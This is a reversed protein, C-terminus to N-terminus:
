EAGSPFGRDDFWAGHLMEFYVRWNPDLTWSRKDGLWRLAWYIRALKLRAPFDAPAQGAWRARVYAAEARRAEEGNGWGELLSVLDLEGAGLAASGWDVPWAAERHILINKPYFEGHVMCQSSADALETLATAARDCVEELWPYQQVLPRSYEWTRAAWGAFYFSDYTPLLGAERESSLRQESTLRHFEGLWQAARCLSGQVRGVYTSPELWDLVLCARDSEPDHVVGWCRPVTVQLPQLVRQYIEAEEEVGRWYGHGTHDGLSSWKLFLRITRGDHLVCTAVEAPSVGADIWAIRETCQLERDGLLGALERQVPARGVPSAVGPM